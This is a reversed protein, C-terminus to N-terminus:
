GNVPGGDAPAASPSSAIELVDGRGDAIAWGDARKYQRWLFPAVTECWDDFSVWGVGNNMANVDWIGRSGGESLMTGVWHTYRYRARKPVNPQMWPGTWQIRVLGYAPWSPGAKRWDVGISSLAAHMLTPNTYGKAVFDGMHERVADLTLGTMAALATPGCNAGWTEFAAATDAESFRPMPTTM